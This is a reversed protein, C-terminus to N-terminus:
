EGAESNRLLQPQTEAVLELPRVIQITLQQHRNVLSEGMQLINPVKTKCNGYFYTDRTPVLGGKVGVPHPPPSRKESQSVASQQAFIQNAFNSYSLGRSTSRVGIALQCLSGTRPKHAHASECKAALRAQDLLLSREIQLPIRIGDGTRDAPFTRLRRCISDLPAM